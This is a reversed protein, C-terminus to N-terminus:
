ELFKALKSNKRDQQFKLVESITFLLIRLSSFKLASGIKVLRSKFNSFKFLKNILFVSNPSNKKSVASAKLRSNRNVCFLRTLEKKFTVGDTSTEAGAGERNLFKVGVEKKLIKIKKEFGM